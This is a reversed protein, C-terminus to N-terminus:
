QAAGQGSPSSGGMGGWTAGERVAPGWHRTPVEHPKRKRQNVMIYDCTLRRQRCSDSLPPTCERHYHLGGRARSRWGGGKEMGGGGGGIWMMCMLIHYVSIGTHPQIVWILWEETQIEEGELHGRGSPTDGGVGKAHAGRRPRRALPGKDRGVGRPGVGEGPDEAQGM